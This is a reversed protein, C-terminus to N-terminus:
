RTMGGHQVGALKPKRLHRHDQVQLVVLPLPVPAALHAQFGSCAARQFEFQGLQIFPQPLPVDHDLTVILQREVIAAVKGHEDRRVM